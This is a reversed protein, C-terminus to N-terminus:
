KRANFGKKTREMPTLALFISTYTRQYSSYNINQGRLTGSTVKIEASLINKKFLNCM